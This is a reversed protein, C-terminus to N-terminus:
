LNDFVLQILLVLELDTEGLEQDVKAFDGLLPLDGDLFDEGM